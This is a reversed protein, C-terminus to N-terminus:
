YQSNEVIKVEEDTLGYLEYVLQDIQRDIAAIQRVIMTREHAMTTEALKKNLCLMSQVMNVMRDHKDADKQISFDIPRISFIALEKVKFQPFIKRQLKGFTNIFWFSILRSNLMGMIYNINHKDEPHKKVIMSNNDNILNETVCCTLICYPPKSPIQRVLLREGNFLYPKRSRSLNKGYKIFQKSWGIYYRKVDVGDVYKIWSDDIKTFGHYVRKNKMDKTQRPTGEGVTYAQVGNRVECLNNLHVGNSTIRRCLQARNATDIECAIVYNTTNLYINSTCDSIKKIDYNEIEHIVVKTEGKKSFMLICTDVSANQFVKHLINAININFTNTLLFRRFESSYELSLWNNPIIFGFVGRRSLLHFSKEVFLFYTNIKFQTHLYKQYYYAKENKTILERTFIYPPNGMVADFGGDKFAQPFETEWDFANIKYQEEDDLINLQNDYFDPGILSNGCKINDALNPLAREQWLSLQQKLTEQNENELVKLLLSLKTVEVAQPDIDVGYINNLLIQKKEATTLFWDGGAGQYLKPQKGSTHRDLAKVYTDRHWDLLYQYAGILFSGSGCAPDLIKLKEAQKPTKGKLLKGVTNKVIYDVIYKPTYYVGGAKRVEPKEEIKARHSKTLRIVKGLFQEYVQGLIDSPLVSFEYPSEPYYLNKIIGVLVKNDISLKPTLEDPSGGGKEQNFCFLGSNYREDAKRFLDVLDLYINDKNLLGKLRKHPEIGRAECIRLFIIRDITKQVAFNLEHASLKPNRLAINKALTERWGEIEKLFESDVESTGRKGKSGKVFKDFAGKLVAERSFVSEISDWKELYESYTYYRVRGFSPKDEKRPRIRCDYIALEEFDTLVSLPLKCSWAYRRIQFAPYPDDKVDISPRKTELFFKRAGGIRFCYDPAKTSKGVRISDEHVVDRYAPAWGNDNTVDWGLAKWFPNIFEARLETENYAQSKYAEINQSFQNVLKEITKPAGM